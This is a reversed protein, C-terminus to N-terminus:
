YNTGYQEVDKFIEADVPRGIMERCTLVSKQRYLGDGCGMSYERALIQGAVMREMTRRVCASQLLVSAEGETLSVAQVSYPRYTERVFGIPLTYGGPLTLRHEETMKDCNM